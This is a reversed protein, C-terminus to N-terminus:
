GNILSFTIPNEVSISQEKVLRKNVEKYVEINNSLTCTIYLNSEKFM